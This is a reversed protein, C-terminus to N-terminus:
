GGRREALSSAAASPSPTTLMTATRTQGFPAAVGGLAGPGVGGTDADSFAVLGGAAGVSSLDVVDGGDVSGDLPRAPVDPTLGEAARPVAAGAAAFLECM